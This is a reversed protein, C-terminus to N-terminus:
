PKTQAQECGELDAKKNADVIHFEVRRNKQRADDTKAPDLPRNKGCGYAELREAPVGHEVLWRVVSASRKKSLRMNLRAPGSDDAHGEVRIREIDTHELMSKAVAELVAHSSELLGDKGTEFEVRERIVLQEKTKEVLAKPACGRQEAVGAENPCADDVDAIGDGDNDADPCGDEDAFGDKDEPEAPCRDDADAVGDGDNDTDPCGDEDEFGDKDEPEAPCSDDADAIGDGDNDADPCGDEDEFGDRDEAELPCRDAADLVGDGDRDAPPPPAKDPAALAYGLTAVVRM